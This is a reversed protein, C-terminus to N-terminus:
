RRWCGARTDYMKRLEVRTLTVLSPRHDRATDASRPSLPDDFRAAATSM